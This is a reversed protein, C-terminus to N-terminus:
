TATILETLRTRADEHDVPARLAAQASTWAPLAAFQGFRNAVTGQQDAIRPLAAVADAADLAGAPATAGPIIQVRAAWFALGNALEDLVVPDEDGSLLTRVAHGTRIVGHTAGAIIGPLLRPWWTHLVERWPAETVQHRLYATWDGIRREDGLADRWTDDTVPDSAAPLDDLRRLYGDVWRHVQEEHGRRVLVEAAMPGHNTLRNEGWEPGTDRFREYAEDLIKSTMTM